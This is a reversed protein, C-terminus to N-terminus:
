PNPPRVRRHRAELLNYVGFAFLGVAAALYLWRGWPQERIMDMAGPIGIDKEPRWGLAAYLLLVGIVGVVAGRAVIGFQCVVSSPPTALDRDKMRKMYKKRFGKVIQAFAFGLIALGALGAVWRGARSGFLWATIGGGSDEGGGAGLGTFLSVAYFALLLHLVGSVVLTGRVFVAKADRGHGDADGFGQYFRWLAFVLLGAAVVVLAVTGLPSEAIERIAGKAGKAKEGGGGSGFASAVALGGIVLYIVGRIAYGARALRELHKQERM